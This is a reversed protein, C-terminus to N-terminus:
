LDAGLEEAMGSGLGIALDDLEHEGSQRLRPDAPREREIQAM